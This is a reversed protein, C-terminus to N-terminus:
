YDEKNLINQVQIKKKETGFFNEGIYFEFINRLVSHWWWMIEAQIKFKKIRFHERQGKFFLFIIKINKQQKCGSVSGAMM